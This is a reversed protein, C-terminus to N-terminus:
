NYFSVKTTTAAPKRRPAMKNKFKSLSIVSQQQFLKNFDTVKGSNYVIRFWCNIILPTKRFFIM